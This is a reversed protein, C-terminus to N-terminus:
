IVMHYDSDYMLMYKKLIADVVYVTTETPATRTADQLKKPVAMARLDAITTPQASNLNVQGVSSDTGIKVPWREGSCQALAPQSSLILGSMGIMALFLFRKM